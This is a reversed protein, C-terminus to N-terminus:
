QRALVSTPKPKPSAAKSPAKRTSRAATGTHTNQPRPEECAGRQSGPSRPTSRPSPLAGGCRRSGGPVPDYITSGTREAVARLWDRPQLRGYTAALVAPAVGADLLTSAVLHMCRYAVDRDEETHSSSPVVSCSTSRACTTPLHARTESGVMAEQLAGLSRVPDAATELRGCCHLHCHLEVTPVCAFAPDSLVGNTGAAAQM